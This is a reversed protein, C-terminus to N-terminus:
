YRIELNMKLNVEIETKILITFEVIKTASQKLELEAM